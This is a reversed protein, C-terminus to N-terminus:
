IIEVLKRGGYNRFFTETRHKAIFDKYWNASLKPTRELTARDVHYLGYRVTYGQIWEFNDLLSWAFYGKVNAGKRIAELLSDLHGEMYDIRNFDKLYQDKTFNSHSMQGYGNETLFMPINNYRDKIYTVIKEMGKPNIYQMDLSALKGNPSTQYSGETRTIGLGQECISFICDKVYFSIYHNIGIFDVGKKLKEQDNSSFRPLINGLIEQMEKPYKGFIIPDLIWKSNFSRARETALKDETSNSIPEYWDLHVAIGIKGGQEAQYKTRYIEVADAHSLIINHVVLFPEKESDGQSCNGFPKSCRGPPGVGLRYGYTALFDPENFTAWYKVRDGFSKFCLEAFYQFDERSQPSLWAGYRDELEQPTDFHFLTVFPQIGKVLLADILKNYYNVGAWNIEGFRGKPLVRAWSISFRYSNVKIAEMLDIDGLYRHYQDVAIDGNSRDVTTGPKHTFVDWNSLGKGDSLFAGEFQYSSSSTGFLFNCPFPSTNNKLLLMHSTANFFLSFFLLLLLPFEM